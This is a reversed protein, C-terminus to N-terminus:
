AAFHWDDPDEDAEPPVARWWGDVGAEFAALQEAEVDGMEYGTYLHPLKADRPRAQAMRALRHALWQCDEDTLAEDPGLCRGGCTPCDEVPEAEVAVPTSRKSWQGPTKKKKEPPSAKPPTVEPTESGAAFRTLAAEFDGAFAEVRVDATLRDLRALHALLLRSDYRRRTAVVEGHYWVQEEVGDIARCSLVDEAHVRAALLAADWARRFLADALRARYATQHSVGAHTAAGRVAGTAALAHLFAVQRERTFLSRGDASTPVPEAGPHASLLSEQPADVLAPLSSRDDGAGGDGEVRGDDWRLSPDM